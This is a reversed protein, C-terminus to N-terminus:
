LGEPGSARALRRTLVGTLVLAGLALLVYGLDEGSVGLTESAGSAPQLSRELSAVPYARAAGGSTKGAGTRSTAGRGSSGNPAANESGTRAGAGAAGSPSYGSSGLSSGSSGGSSSGSSGGASGGGAGGGGLLASGLIAQNGEGPGGYGSLLSGALACSPACAMLVALLILTLSSTRHSTMRQKGVKPKGSEARAVENDGGHELVAAAKV